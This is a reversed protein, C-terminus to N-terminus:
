IGRGGKGAVTKQGNIEVLERSRGKHTRLESGLKLLKRILIKLSTLVSSLQLIFNM